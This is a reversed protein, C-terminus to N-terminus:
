CLSGDTKRNNKIRDICYSGVTYPLRVTNTNSKIQKFCKWDNM